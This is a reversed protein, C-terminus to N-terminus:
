KMLNPRGHLIDIKVKWLSAFLSQLTKILISKSFSSILNGEKLLFTQMGNERKVINLFLEEM